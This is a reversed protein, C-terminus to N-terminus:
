APDRQNQAGLVSYSITTPPVNVVIRRTPGPILNYYDPPAIELTGTARIILHVQGITVNTPPTTGTSIVAGVTPRRAEKKPWCIRPLPPTFAIRFDNPAAVGDVNRAQMDRLATNFRIGLTCVNDVVVADVWMTIRNEKTDTPAPPPGFEAIANSEVFEESTCLMEFRNEYVNLNGMESDIYGLSSESASYRVKGVSSFM